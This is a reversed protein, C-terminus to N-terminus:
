AGIQIKVQNEKKEPELSFSRLRKAVSKLWKEVFARVELPPSCNNKGRNQLLKGNNDINVTFFPKDPSAVDRLDLINTTGACCDKYYTKVCHNLKGSEELFEELCILPRILYKNDKYSLKNLLEARNALARENEKNEEIVVLATCRDHEKKIDPPYLLDKDQTLDMGLQKAASIYDKWYMLMKAASLKKCQKEIYNATRTLTVGNKLVTKLDRYHGRCLKCIRAFDTLSKISLKRERWMNLEEPNIDFKAFEKLVPKPVGLAKAPSTEIGNYTMAGYIFSQALNYLGMKGLNEIMPCKLIAKITSIISIELKCLPRIDVNHVAAIPLSQVFDTINEPYLEGVGCLYMQRPPLKTWIVNKIYVAYNALKNGEARFYERRLEVFSNERVIKGSERDFIYRSDAFYFRSVYDNDGLQQIYRVHRDFVVSIKRFSGHRTSAVNECVVEAGCKPCSMLKKDKVGALKTKKGCVACKGSQLKSKRDYSYFWVSRSLVDRTVWTNFEEPPEPAEAIFTNTKNKRREAAARAKDSALSDRYDSVWGIGTKHGHRTIKNLEKHKKAFNLVTESASGIPLAYNGGYEGSLANAISWWYQADELAFNGNGVCFNGRILKKDDANYRAAAVGGLENIYHIESLQWRATKTKYVQSYMPVVLTEVGKKSTHVFATYYFYTAQGRWNRGEDILQEKPPKVYEEYKLSSLEKFEIM